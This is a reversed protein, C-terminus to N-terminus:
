RGTNLIWVLINKIRSDRAERDSLQLASEPYVVHSEKQAHALPMGCLYMYLAPVEANKLIFM